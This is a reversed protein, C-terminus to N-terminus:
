LIKKIKLDYVVKFIYLILSIFIMVGGFTTSIVLTFSSFHILSALISLLGLINLVGATMVIKDLKMDEENMQLQQRRQIHPCTVTQESARNSAQLLKRPM